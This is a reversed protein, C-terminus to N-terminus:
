NEDVNVRSKQFHYYTCIYSFYSNPKYEDENNEPCCMLVIYFMIGKPWVAKNLRIDTHIPICKQIDRDEQCMEWYRETDERGKQRETHTEWGWAPAREVVSSCALSCKKFDTGLICKYINTHTHKPAWRVSPLVARSVKSESVSQHSGNQWDWTPFSGKSNVKTTM